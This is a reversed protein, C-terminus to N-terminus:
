DTSREGVSQSYGPRRGRRLRRRGKSGRRETRRRTCELGPAVDAEDEGPTGKCPLRTPNVFVLVLAVPRGGCCCYPLRQRNLFESVEPDTGGALANADAQLIAVVVHHADREVHHHGETATLDLAPESEACCLASRVLAYV